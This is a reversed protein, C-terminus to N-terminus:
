KKDGGEAGVTEHYLNTLAEMVEEIYKSKGNYKYLECARYYDEAYVKGRSKSFHWIQIIADHLLALEVDENRKVRNLIDELDGCITDLRGDFHDLKEGINTIHNTLSAELEKPKM